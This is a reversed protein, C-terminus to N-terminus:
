RKRLTSDPPTLQDAVWFDLRYPEAVARSGPKEVLVWLGSAISDFALGLLPKGGPDLLRATRRRRDFRLSDLQPKTGFGGAEISRYSALM